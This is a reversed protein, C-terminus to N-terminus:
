KEEEHAKIFDTIKRRANTTVVKNLWDDKPVFVKDDTVIRVRDNNQLKYDFAVAQDNVIAAIMTNGLDTHIKYAFDIPTAGVPLEIIEGQTTRVYINKSFLEQKARKVFEINDKISSDLESISKFFQFNNELDKQMKISAMNKNKFWYSTLGYMAIREMEKTRIQFQVLLNGESFVTTHIAQYMNTKPKVIYDKFKYTFPPYLSHIIMLALYCERVTKVIVKICLLDHINEITAKTILKKHVSYVDKYQLEIHSKIGEQKLKNKVDFMMKNLLKKSGDHIINLKKELDRYTEPKLYYFCINELENKIQYSGIYYALPVYIELTELAIKNQRDSKKFNLTRMNHLRDALKIIVIRADKKIGVIIRRINQAILENSSILNMQSIKTVGEVLFAITPNFENILEEYSAKTDEIVDHLLGACVTDSDAHMDALICAVALPHIIYDEGSERKQNKHYKKAFLYAKNVIDWNNKNYSKVKKELVGIDIEM